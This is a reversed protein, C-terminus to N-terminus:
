TFYVYAVGDGSNSANIFLKGLSNINILDSQQDQYLVAGRQAGSSVIITSGGWVVTGTNNPLAWLRVGMIVVAGATLATAVGDAAVISRGDAISVFPISISSLTGTAISAITVGSASIVNSIAATGTIFVTGDSAVKMPVATDVNVGIFLTGTGTSVGVAGVAYRVSANDTITGSIPLPLASSVDGDNTGDAGLVLKIRQFLVGAISDAAVTAGVGPTINVNDAM